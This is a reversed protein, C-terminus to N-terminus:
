GPKIVTSKCHCYFKPKSDKTGNPNVKPSNKIVWEVYVASSGINKIKVEKLSISNIQAEFKLDLKDILLESGDVIFEARPEHIPKLLTDRGQALQSKDLM